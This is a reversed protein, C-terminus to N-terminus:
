ACSLALLRCFNDLVSEDEYKTTKSLSELFGVDLVRLQFGVDCDRFYLDLGLTVCKGSAHIVLDNSCCITYEKSIVYEKFFTYQLTKLKIM